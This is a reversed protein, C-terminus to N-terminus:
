TASYAREFAAVARAKAAAFTGETLVAGEDLGDDREPRDLELDACCIQGGDAM